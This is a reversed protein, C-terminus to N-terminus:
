PEFTHITETTYRCRILANGYNSCGYFRNGNRNNVREVLVGHCLPCKGESEILQAEHAQTLAPNAEKDRSHLYRAAEAVEATNLCRGGSRMVQMVTDRLDAVNIVFTNLQTYEVRNLASDKGFVVFSYIVVEGTRRTPFLKNINYAVAGIHILNQRIPNYFTTKSGGNYYATWNKAKGSGYIKANFNKSEVVFIGSETVAILDVETLRGDAKEVYVNRLINPEYICSRLIDYIDRELEDGRAHKYAGLAAATDRSLRPKPPRTNREARKQVAAIIKREGARRVKRGVAAIAAIAIVAAIWKVKGSFLIKFLSASSSNADPKTTTPVAATAAPQASSIVEGDAYQRAARSVVADAFSAVIRDYQRAVPRVVMEYIEDYGSGSLEGYTYVLGATTGSNFYLMVGAREGYTKAYYRAARQTMKELSTDTKAKTIYVAVIFGTQETANGLVVQAQALDTVVGSTDKILVEDAAASTIGLLVCLMIVAAVRYAAKVM